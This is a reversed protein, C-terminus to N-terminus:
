DGYGPKRSAQSGLFYAWTGLVTRTVTPNAGTNVPPITSSRVIVPVLTANTTAIAGGLFVGIDDFVTQTSVVNGNVMAEPLGAFRKHGYRQGPTGKPSRYSLAISSPMPNTLIDSGDYGLGNNNYDSAPNSWKYGEIHQIHWEESLLDSLPDYLNDNISDVLVESVTDEAEDASLQYWFRNLWNEGNFTGVALAIYVDGAAGAMESCEGRCTSLSLLNVMHYFMLALYDVGLRENVVM